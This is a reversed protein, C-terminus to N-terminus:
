ARQITRNIHLTTMGTADALESQTIRFDCTTAGGLGMATMRTMWECFVQAVRAYAVRRGVNMARTRTAVAPRSGRGRQKLKLLPASQIYRGARNQREGRM